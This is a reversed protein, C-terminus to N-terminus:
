KDGKGKMQERIENIAAQVDIDNVNEVEIKQTERWGRQTKLWFYISSRDGRLISEM